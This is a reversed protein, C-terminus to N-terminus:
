LDLYARLTWWAGIRRVVLGHFTASKPQSRVRVGGAAYQRLGVRARLTWQGAAGTTAPGDVGIVDTDVVAAHHVDALAILENLWAYALAPLDNAEVVVDHSISADVGPAVDAAIEALAIAAEEFLVALSPAAARVGTDATHPMAGHAVTRARRAGVKRSDSARGPSRAGTAETTAVM